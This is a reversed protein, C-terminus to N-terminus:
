GLYSPFPCIIILLCGGRVYPADQPYDLWQGTQGRDPHDSVGNVPQPCYPNHERARIRFIINKRSETGVVNRSSTHPSHFVTVATCCVSCLVRLLM